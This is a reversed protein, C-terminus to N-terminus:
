AAVEEWHRELFDAEAWGPAEAYAVQRPYAPWDGSELCRKWLEVARARKREALELASPALSIVSVAYPPETEVVVFRWEGSRGTIARLGALYHAAQLDKGDAFLRNRAWDHPNASTGTSKLDDIHRHSNHLWDCRARCWVGDEQWVLTQEPMGDALPRPRVDFERLQERVRECFACMRDWDKRLLPVLGARRAAARAEQAAKKRWDDFDLVECVDLGQLLLAHAATGFDLIGAEKEVHAPNLRPHQERAHAPSRSLLRHAIGASLSPTECPDAHYQDAPIGDHIGTGLYSTPTM